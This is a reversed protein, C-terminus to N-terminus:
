IVDFLANCPVFTCMKSIALKQKKKVTRPAYHMIAATQEVSEFLLYRHILVAELDDDHLLYIANQIKEIVGVTHLRQQEAKEELEALKLLASETGNKATDSRGKDNGEACISLGQARERHRQILADLAKIKKDAYFASNLWNKLEIENM